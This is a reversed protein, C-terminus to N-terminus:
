KGDEEYILVAQVLYRADTQGAICTSLTLVKSEQTVETGERVMAEMSRPHQSEKIYKERENRDAFDFSKMINRDDYPYASYIEYVRIMGPTYIYVYRNNSFFSEEGFLFLNQFMSGNKMNHGFLVTVPDEFDTSNASESYVCGAFQPTGYMDHHLYFTQDEGKHQAVPYDINTNPIRIWAYLEPNIQSLMTFNVPNEAADTLVGDPMAPAPADIIGTFEAGEIEELTPAPYVEEETETQRAMERRLKEYERETKYRSWYYWGVYCACSLFGLLSVRFVLRWIKQKKRMAWVAKWYALLAIGNIQCFTEPVMGTM